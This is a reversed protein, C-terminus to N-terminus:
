PLNSRMLAPASDSVTLNEITSSYIQAGTSGSDLLTPYIARRGAVSWCAAFYDWWYRAGGDQGLLRLHFNTTARPPRAGLILEGSTTSTVPVGVSLEWRQSYPAALASLSNTLLEMSPPGGLGIGMIGAISSGSLGSTCQTDPRCRVKDVIEFPVPTTTSQGGIHVVAKGVTGSFISGDGFTISTRRSSRAIGGASGLAHAEVRLGISGTDVLVKVPASEGVSVEVVPRGFSGSAFDTTLPIIDPQPTAHSSALAVVAAGITGLILLTCALIWAARSRRANLQIPGYRLRFRAQSM